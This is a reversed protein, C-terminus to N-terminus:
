RVYNGKQRTRNEVEKFVYQSYSVSPRLGKRKAEALDIPISHRGGPEPYYKKGGKSTFVTRAPEYSRGPVDGNDANGGIYNGSEDCFAGTNADIFYGPYRDSEYIERGNDLYM